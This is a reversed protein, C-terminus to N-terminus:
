QYSGETLKIATLLDKKLFLLSGKKFGGFNNKTLEEGEPTHVPEGAANIITGNENISHGFANLLFPLAGPTFTLRATTHNM